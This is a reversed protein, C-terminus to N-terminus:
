MSQMSVIEDGEQLESVLMTIDVGGRKALVKQSEKLQLTKGEETVIELWGAFDPACGREEALKYTSELAQEKIKKFMQYNESAAQWSEWAIGKSQLYGHFGMAGLGVSREMYASYKAKELEEPAYRIFFKLVNDLLRVLDQVM